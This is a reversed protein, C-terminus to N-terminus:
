NQLLKRVFFLFLIRLDARDKKKFLILASVVAIKKVPRCFSTNNTTSTRRVNEHFINQEELVVTFCLVSCIKNKSDSLSESKVTVSFHGYEKCLDIKKKKFTMMM